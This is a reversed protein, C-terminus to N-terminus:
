VSKAYARELGEVFQSEAIKEASQMQLQHAFLVIDRERSTQCTSKGRRGASVKDAKGATGGFVQWPRVIPAQLRVLTLHHGPYMKGTM